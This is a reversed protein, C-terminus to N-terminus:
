MSTYIFEDLFRPRHDSQLVVHDTVHSEVFHPNHGVTVVESGVGYNEVFSLQRTGLLVASETKTMGFMRGDPRGVALLAGRVSRHGFKHYLDDVPEAAHVEPGSFSYSLAFLKATFAELCQGVWKTDAIVVCRKGLRHKVERGEWLRLARSIFLPIAIYLVADALGVLFGVLRAYGACCEFGSHSASDMSRVGAPLSLLSGSVWCGPNTFTCNDSTTSRKDQMFAIALVADLIVRLLPKHLAVTLIIYVGSPFMSRWTESMHQGWRRGVALLHARAPVSNSRAGDYGVVERMSQISAGSLRVVDELFQPSVAPSVTSPPSACIFLLLETLTHHTACVAVSSPEAPRLGSLSCFIHDRGPSAELDRRKTPSEQSRNPTEVGGPKFQPHRRHYDM